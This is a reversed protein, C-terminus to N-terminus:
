KKVRPTLLIAMMRTEFLQGEPQSLFYILDIINIILNQFQVMKTMNIKQGRHGRKSAMSFSKQELKDLM